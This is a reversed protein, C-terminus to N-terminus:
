RRLLVRGRGSHRAQDKKAIANSTLSIPQANGKEGYFAPDSPGGHCNIFHALPALRGAPHKPGNPPALTLAASNGFVNFLSM